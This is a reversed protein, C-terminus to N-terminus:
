LVDFSKGAPGTETPPIIATKGKPAGIKHGVISVMDPGGLDDLRVSVKGVAQAADTHFLVGRRRCEMAVERVPQLAGSENNAAMLTVLVTDGTIAAVVDEASVRGENDVPVYTVDVVGPGEGGGGGGELHRLYLDVAPHEVNSTVIHRRRGGAGGGGAASQLALQIALNDSETGCGTFWVSSSSSLSSRDSGFDGQAGCGLLHRLIQDRAHDIARRPEQGLMHSSSPNGYHERLYPLMAELVDPHVPTTGNYDLYYFSPPSSTSTKTGDDATKKGAETGRHRRAFRAAATAVVATVSAAAAGAAVAAMWSASGPPRAHSGTRASSPEM